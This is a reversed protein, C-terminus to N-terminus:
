NAPSKIGQSRGNGTMSLFFTLLYTSHCIKYEYSGGTQSLFDLSLTIVRKTVRDSSNEKEVSLDIAIFIFTVSGTFLLIYLGIM